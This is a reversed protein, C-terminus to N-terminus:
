SSSQVPHKWAEWSIWAQFGTLGLTLISVIITIILALMAVLFSNSDSTQWRIWREFKTRPPPNQLFKHLELLRESWYVYTLDGDTGDFMRYGDYVSCTNDLENKRIAQQLIDM